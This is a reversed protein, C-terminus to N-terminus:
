VTTTVEAISLYLLSNYKFVTISKQSEGNITANDTNNCAFNQTLAKPNVYKNNEPAAKLKLILNLIATFVTTLQIQFSPHITSVRPKYQLLLM